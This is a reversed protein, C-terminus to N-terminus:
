ITNKKLGKNQGNGQYGFFVVCKIQQNRLQLFDLYHTLPNANKLNEQYGLV